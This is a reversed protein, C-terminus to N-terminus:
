PRYSCGPGPFGGPPRISRRGYFPCLASEVLRGAHNKDRRVMRCLRALFARRWSPLKALAGEDGAFAFGHTEACPARPRDHRLWSLALRPHRARSTAQGPNSRADPAGINAEDVVYLGLEDCLEYWRPCNPYHSCRVANFNHAKMQCIDKRMSAESVVKGTTLCKVNTHMGVAGSAVARLLRLLNVRGLGAVLAMKSSDLMGEIAELLAAEKFSSRRENMFCRAAPATAVHLLADHLTHLTGGTELHVPLM